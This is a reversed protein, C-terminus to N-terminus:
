ERIKCTSLNVKNKWGQKKSVVYKYYGLEILTMAWTEQNQIMTVNFSAM